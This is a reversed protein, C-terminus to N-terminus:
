KIVVSGTANEEDWIEVKPENFEINEQKIILTYTYKQGANWSYTTPFAIEYEKFSTKVYVKQTGNIQEPIVLIGGNTIDTYDTESEAKNLTLDSDYGFYGSGYNGTSWAGSYDAKTAVTRLEVREIDVPTALESLANITVNALLHKFELPVVSGNAPAPAGAEVSATASAVMIDEQETIDYGEITFNQNKDTNYVTLTGASPYFAKFYYDTDPLWYEPTELAWIDRGEVVSHTVKKAFSTSGANGEVYAYVMFGNTKLDAITATARTDPSDFLIPYKVGQPIDDHQQCSVVGAALMAACAILGCLKIRM